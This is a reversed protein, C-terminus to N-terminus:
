QGVGGDGVLVLKFQPTEQSMRPLLFNFLRLVFFYVDIRACYRFVVTESEVSIVVNEMGIKRLTDFSTALKM